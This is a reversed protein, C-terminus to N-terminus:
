LVGKVILHQRLKNVETMLQAAYEPDIREWTKALDMKGEYRELARLTRQLSAKRAENTDQDRSMTERLCTRWRKCAGRRM